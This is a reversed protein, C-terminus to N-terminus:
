SASAGGPPAQAQLPYCGCGWVVLGDRLRLVEAVRVGPENPYDIVITGVAVRVDLVSFHLEPRRALGESWYDRLAQKGRVEGTPEGLWAAVHPSEFVVDDSYRSLIREVDRSNWDAEWQKAFKWAHDHDM